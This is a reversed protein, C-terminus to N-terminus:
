SESRGNKVPEYTADFIDPDCPYLEGQVGQIIWWGPRVTLPGELTEILLPDSGNTAYLTGDEFADWIWDPVAGRPEVNGRGVYLVAEIVIPKKRYEPM